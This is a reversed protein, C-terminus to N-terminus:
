SGAVIKGSADRVLFYVRTMSSMTYSTTNVVQGSAVTLAEGDKISGSAPIPQTGPEISTKCATAVEMTTAGAADPWSDDAAIISQGPPIPQGYAQETAIVTGAANKFTLALEVSSAWLDPSDKRLVVGWSAGQYRPGVTFGQEAVTCTAKLPHGKAVVVFPDSLARDAKGCDARVRYTGACGPLNIRGTAKYNRAKITAVKTSAPGTVSVKGSASYTHVSVNIGSGAEAVDPRTIDSSDMAAAPTAVMFTLGLCGVLAGAFATKGVLIEGWYRTSCPEIAIRREPRGVSLPAAVHQVSAM